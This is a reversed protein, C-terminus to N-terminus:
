SITSFFPDVSVGPRLTRQITHHEVSTMVCIVVHSAPRGNLSRKANLEILRVSSSAVLNFYASFGISLLLLLVSASASLPPCCANVTYIRVYILNNRLRQVCYVELASLFELMPSLSWLTNTCYEVRGPVKLHSCCTFYFHWLLRLM